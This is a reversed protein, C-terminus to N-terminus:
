RFLHYNIATSRGLLKSDNDTPDTPDWDSNVHGEGEQMLNSAPQSRVAEAYVVGPSRVIKDMRAVQQRYLVSVRHTGGRSKQRSIGPPTENSDVAQTDGCVRAHIQTAVATAHAAQINQWGSAGRYEIPKIASNSAESWTESHFLDFPKRTRLPQRTPL